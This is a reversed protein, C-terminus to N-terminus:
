TTVGCKSGESVVEVLEGERSCDRRIGRDRLQSVDVHTEGAGLLANGDNNVRSTPHIDKM